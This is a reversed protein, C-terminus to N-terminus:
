RAFERGISRVEHAFEKSVKVAVVPTADQHAGTVIKAVEVQCIGIGKRDVGSCIDGVKPLPLFEYPFYVLAQTDSFTHDEMFIALGPCKPICIGCGICKKEDLKPLNTIVEGVYVAGKPCASECPNCPIEEVCEIVAVPGAALREASPIVCYRELEDISIAGSNRLCAAKDNM